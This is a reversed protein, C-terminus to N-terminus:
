FVNFFKRVKFNAIPVDRVCMIDSAEQSAGPGEEVEDVDPGQADEPLDEPAAAM